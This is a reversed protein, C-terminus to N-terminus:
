VARELSSQHGGHSIMARKNNEQMSKITPNAQSAHTFIEKEIEREKRRKESLQPLSTNIPTHTEQAAAQSIQALHYSIELEQDNRQILAHINSALPLSSISQYAQVREKTSNLPMNNLSVIIDGQELGLAKGISNPQLKGIRCGKNKGKEFATTIDLNELFEALSTVRNSILKPDIIFEVDSIKQIALNWTTNKVFPKSKRADEQNIFLTEHQGNSRVVMIRNSYIRILRADEVMDGVRYLHEQKSANNAIIARNDEDHSSYFIGKLTVNLPPLFDINKREIYPAPRPTPPQPLPLAAIAPIEKTPITPKIYTNFLDNEYIRTINVKSIDKHPELQIEAPTLSMRKPLDQRTIIIAITTIFFLVVLASNFLWVLSKM